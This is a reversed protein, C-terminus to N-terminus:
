EGNSCVGHPMNGVRIKSINVDAGLSVSPSVCLFTPALTVCQTDGDEGAEGGEGSPVPQLLSAEGGGPNGLGGLPSREVGAWIYGMGRAKEANIFPSGPAM